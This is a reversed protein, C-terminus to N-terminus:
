AALRRCATDMSSSDGHPRPISSARQRHVTAERPGVAPQRRQMHQCTTTRNCDRTGHQKAHKDRKARTRHQNNEAVRKINQGNRHQRQQKNRQRRHNRAADWRRPHTKTGRQRGRTKDARRGVPGETGHANTVAAILSQARRLSGSSQKLTKESASARRDTTTTQTTANRKVWHASATKRAEWQTCHTRWPPSHTWCPTARQQDKRHTSPSPRTRCLKRVKEWAKELTAVKTKGGSQFGISEDSSGAVLKAHATDSACPCAGHSGGDKGCRQDTTSHANNCLFIMAQALCKTPKNTESSDAKMFNGSHQGDATLLAKLTNEDKAALTLDSTSKAANGLIAKNVQQTIDAAAQDMRALLQM